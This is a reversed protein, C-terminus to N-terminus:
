VNAPLSHLLFGGLDSRRVLIADEADEVSGDELAAGPGGGVLDQVRRLYVDLIDLSVALIGWDFDRASFDFRTFVQELQGLHLNAGIVELLIIFRSMGTNILYTMSRVSRALKLVDLSSKMSFYLVDMAAARNMSLMGRMLEPSIGQVASRTLALFQQQLDSEASLYQELIQGFVNNQWTIFPKYSVSGEDSAAVFRALQKWARLNLLCAEKHSSGPIVLKEILHLGPRLPEPAAWFLTCLLDHHNRLAALEQHRVDQEKLHQRNHNPLTRAVLNRIENKLDLRKLQRIVLAILKLFIHFCRDDPEVCLSPSGALDDLFHPSKYVEENRLHALDQSGFFDFIVGIIGACKRWGWQEVLYHCRSVLARCYENFSPSQRPNAKYLQFVRRLVQIPLAWGDLPVERRRNPVLIGSADFESLPLLIFLTRFSREFRAADLESSISRDILVSYLVDCFSGRPIKAEELVHMLVVWACAEADSSRIGRRRTSGHQLNEYLAEISSTGGELLVRISLTCLSKLTEDLDFVKSRSIESRLCISRTRLVVVQLKALTDLVRHLNSITRWSPLQQRKAFGDLVECLRVVFALEDNTDLFRVSKELYSLIFDAASAAKDVTDSTQLYDMMADVVIGMESSTNENWVGWQLQREGLSFVSTTRSDLGEDSYVSSIANKLRGSGILTSQHFFVGGDLPFVEFHQTYHTGFPGLGLLKNEPRHETREQVDPPSAAPPSSPLPDNAHVYCAASTDICRPAARKRFRSKRRLLGPPQRTEDRSETAQLDQTSFPTDPRSDPEAEEALFRELRFNEAGQLRRDGKRFLRDLAKKRMTFSQETELMELQAPRVVIEPSAGSIPRMQHHAAREVRPTVTESQMLPATGSPLPNFADVIREQRDFTQPATSTPRRAAPRTSTKAVSPQRRVLPKQRIKGAKWDRLVSLADLTDQRTGLAISKCSPSARGFESRQRASRAAIRIFNPAKPEMVDLISLRPPTAAKKVHKRRRTGEHSRGHSGSSAKDLKSSRSFHDVIKQQHAGQRRATPRSSVRKRKVGAAMWDVRNDEIVSDADDDALRFPNNLAESTIDRLEARSPRAEEDESESDIFMLPDSSHAATARRRQAVGKRAAKGPSRGPSEERVRKQVRNRSKVQDLRLWSAPLVGRMRKAVRRVVESESDSASSSNGEDDDTLTLDVIASGGSMGNHTRSARATREPYHAPPSSSLRFVENQVSPLRPAPSQLMSFDHAYTTGPTPASKRVSTRQPAAPARRKNTSVPSSAHRKKPPGDALPPGARKLLKDLSLVETGSDDSDDSLLVQRRVPTRPRPPSFSPDSADDATPPLAVVPQSEESEDVGGATEQTDEEFDADQSDEEPSGRRPPCPDHTVIRIPKLGHSRLTATYKANEILYPHEQIPKRPRLSREYFVPQHTVTKPVSGTPGEALPPAGNPKDQPSGPNPVSASSVADVPIFIHTQPALARQRSGPEDKDSATNSPGGLGEIDQEDSEPPSSLPSSEPSRIGLSSSPKGHFLPSTAPLTSLADSGLLGTDNPSSPVEWIDRGRSPSQGDATQISTAQRAAEAFEQSDITSEDESDPVEGLEKWNRM